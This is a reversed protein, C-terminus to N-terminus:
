TEYFEEPKSAISSYGRNMSGTRYGTLDLTVYTYGLQHLNSLVELRHTVLCDFDKTEVEIRAVNGHHRLRVQQIGLKQLFDEAAEIRRLLPESIPTGYAIRSSLCSRSPADWNPLGFARAAARIESKNMGAEMLPSRIANELAAQRGPRFDDLDNINSGDLIYALGGIRAYDVLQKYIAQKCWYCRESSNEIYRPDEFERSELLVHQLGLKHAIEKARDLDVRAGSPSVMTVCISNKGLVENALYCLLTSDVGGSYAILVSMMEQLISRVIDIKDQVLLNNKNPVSERSSSGIIDM